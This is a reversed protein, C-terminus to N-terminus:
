SCMLLLVELQVNKLSAFLVRGGFNVAQGEKGEKGEKGGAVRTRLIRMNPLSSEGAQARKMSRQIEAAIGLDETGTSNNAAQRGTEAM